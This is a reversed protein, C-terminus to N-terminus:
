ECRCHRKNEEERNCRRMAEIEANWEPIWVHAICLSLCFSASQGTTVSELVMDKGSLFVVRRYLSTFSDWGCIGECAPRGVKLLRSSSDSEASM